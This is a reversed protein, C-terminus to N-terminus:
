TKLTAGKSSRQPIGDEGFSKGEKVVKKTKQYEHQDLADTRLPLDTFVMPIVEDGDLVEPCDGLLNKDNM